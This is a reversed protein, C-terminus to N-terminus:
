AVDGNGLDVQIQWNVLAGARINQGMADAMQGLGALRQAAVAGGAGQGPAEGGIQHHHERALLGEDRQVGPHM